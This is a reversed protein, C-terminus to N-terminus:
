VQHEYKSMGTFGTSLGFVCNAAQPYGTVLLM